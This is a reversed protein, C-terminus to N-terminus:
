PSDYESVFSVVFFFFWSCLSSLSFLPPSPSCEEVPAQVTVKAKAKPKVM